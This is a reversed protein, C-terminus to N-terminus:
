RLPRVRAPKRRYFRQTTRMDYHGLRETAAALTDDSASKARLDNFRFREPLAGSKLAREMTRQWVTDFGDGTYPKGQRTCILASRVRPEIRKAKNVAKTLEDSWEILLSKATKSTQILIGEDTLNTLTLSLLDGRRLGTLVALDMAVQVMPYAFSYVADFEADTVYRTREPLPLKHVDRCPNREAVGWEISKTFVHSLTELVRNALTQHKAAIKDRFAYIAPPKVESVSMHGFSARLLTLHRQKDKQTKPLKTPVVDRQYKDFIASMTNLPVDEYFKGLARYTDALTSGLWHWKGAKDVFYFAGHRLYVSRPLDKNHKRPRAV